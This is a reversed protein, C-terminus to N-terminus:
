KITARNHSEPHALQTGDPSFYLQFAKPPSEMPRGLLDYQTITVNPNERMFSNTNLSGAPYTYFVVGGAETGVALWGWGNQAAPHVASSSLRTSQTIQQSPTAIVHIWGDYTGLVLQDNASLAVTSLGTCCPEYADFGAWLDNDPSTSFQPDATTGSNLFLNINGKEEGVLLDLLGDNNVDILTPTAYSGVDIGGLQGTEWTFSQDGGYWMALKGTLLGAVIDRKGDGNLDGFSLSLYGLNTFGDGELQVSDLEFQLADVATNVLIPVYRSSLEQPQQGTIWLDPILDNNWDEWTVAARGGQDIQSFLTTPSDNKNLGSPSLDWSIAHDGVGNDRGLNSATLLGLKGEAITDVVFMAPFLSAGSELVISTTDTVKLDQNMLLAMLRNSGATGVVLDNQGDQNIDTWEIAAGSHAPHQTKGALSCTGILYQENADDKTVQGFCETSLVFELSDPVGYLEMSLSLFLEFRQGSVGLNVIDLDGDLDIDRILPIDNINAPINYPLNDELYYLDKVMRTFSHDVNQRWVSIGIESYTFVDALGDMNYDRLLMFGLAAPWQVQESIIVDNGDQDKKYVQIRKSIRDFCVLEQDDEEDINGTSFQPAAWGGSWANGLTDAGAIVLPFARALEFVQGM